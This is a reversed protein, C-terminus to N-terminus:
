LKPDATRTQGSQVHAALGFAAPYFLYVQTIVSLFFIKKKNFHKINLM